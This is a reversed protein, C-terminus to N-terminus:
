TPSQRAHGYFVPPGDEVLILLAVLSLLPLGLIGVAVSAGIDFGRKFFAYAITRNPSVTVRPRSRAKPRYQREIRTVLGRGDTVVCETYTEAGM